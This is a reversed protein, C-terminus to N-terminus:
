LTLKAILDSAHETAKMTMQGHDAHGQDIVAIPLVLGSLGWSTYASVHIGSWGSLNCDTAVMLNAQGNCLHTFLEARNSVAVGEVEITPSGVMNAVAGGDGQEIAGVYGTSGTTRSFLIGQSDAGKYIALLAAAAPGAGASFVGDLADDTGDFSLAGGNWVPRRATARAALDLVGNGKANKLMGVPDSPASVSATGGLNSFVYEPDSPDYVAIVADSTRLSELATASNPLGQGSGTATAHKLRRSALRTGYGLM